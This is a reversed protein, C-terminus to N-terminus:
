TEIETVVAGAPAPICCWCRWGKPAARETWWWRGLCQRCRQGPRPPAADHWSPVRWRAMDPLGADHESM